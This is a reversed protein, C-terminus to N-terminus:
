KETILLRGDPLSTIGWPQSLASSIIGSQFSTTTRVGNIRTQGAFAPSYNTNAPNTEVPANAAPPNTDPENDISDDAEDRSCGFLLVIAAVPVIFFNKSKM